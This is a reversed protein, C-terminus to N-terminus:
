RKKVVVRELAAGVREAEGGTELGGAGAVRREIVRRGVPAVARGFLRDQEVAAVVLM